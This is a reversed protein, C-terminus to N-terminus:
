INKLGHACEAFVFALFVLFIALLFLLTVMVTKFVKSELSATVPHSIESLKFVQGCAPCIALGDAMKFDVRRKCRRCFSKPENMVTKSKPRGRKWQLHISVAWGGHHIVLQGCDFWRTAPHGPRKAGIRVPTPRSQSNFINSSWREFRHWGSQFTQATGEKPRRGKRVVGFM